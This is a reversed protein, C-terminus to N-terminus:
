SVAISRRQRLAEKTHDNYEVREDGGMTRRQAHQTGGEAVGKGGYRHAQGTVIVLVAGFNEPNRQPTSLARRTQSTVTAVTNGIEPRQKM